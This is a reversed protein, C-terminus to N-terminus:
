SKPLDATGRVYRTPPRAILIVHKSKEGALQQREQLPRQTDQCRWCRERRQKSEINVILSRYCMKWLVPAARTEAGAWIVAYYHLFRTQRWSRETAPRPKLPPMEAKGPRSGIYGAETTNTQSNAWPTDGAFTATACHWKNVKFAQKCLAPLSM